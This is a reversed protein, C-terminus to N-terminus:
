SRICLFAVICLACPKYSLSRYPMVVVEVAFHPMPQHSSKSISVITKSLKQKPHQPDITDANVFLVLLCKETRLEPLYRCVIPRTLPSSPM